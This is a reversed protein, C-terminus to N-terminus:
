QRLRLARRSSDIPGVPGNVPRFGGPEAPKGHRLQSCSAELSTRCRRAFATPYLRHTLSLDTATTNSAWAIAGVQAPSLPLKSCADPPPPGGSVCAIRDTEAVRVHVSSDGNRSSLPASSAPQLSILRRVGPNSPSSIASHQTNTSM